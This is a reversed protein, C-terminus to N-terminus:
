VPSRQVGAVAAAPIKRHRSAGPLRRHREVGAEAVLWLGGGAVDTRVGALARPRIADAGPVHVRELRQIACVPLPEVDKGEAVHVDLLVRFLEHLVHKEPDPGAPRVPDRGAGHPVVEVEGDAVGCAVSQLTRGHRTAPPDTLNRSRRFDLRLQLRRLKDGRDLSREGLKWGFSGRDAFQPQDILQAVGLDGVPEADALFRSLCLVSAAELGQAVSDTRGHASVGPALRPGVAAGVAPRRPAETGGPRVRRALGRSLTTGAVEPPEEVPAAALLALYTIDEPRGLRGAMLRRAEDCQRTRENYAQQAAGSKEAHVLSWAVIFRWDAPVATPTLRLPHFDIRSACGPQAGLIIAQDMGGGATGVYREGKGLLDMLELPAVTVGNAHLMALAMAVVLASSSSLGAAIPLDSEVLADVGRLDPFRQAVAGVAARAYNSWDGTPAPPIRESVAFASPAFAPDRNVLPTDRDSRPHFAIRVSRRLAMPLVPLGCYDIHEGILNVRGPARVVHMPGPSAM